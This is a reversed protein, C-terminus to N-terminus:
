RLVRCYGNYVHWRDFGGVCFEVNDGLSAFGQGYEIMYWVPRSVGDSLQVNGTCYRRAIPWKETAPQNRTQYIGYFDVIDVNPLNPVHEVQYRFGSTISNLVSKHGCIGSDAQYAPAVMVDAARAASVPALATAATMLAAALMSLRSM